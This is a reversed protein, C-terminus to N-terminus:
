KTNAYQNAIFLSGGTAALEGPKLGDLIEVFGAHTLGTKVIRKTFTRRDRTVWVTMTGDGERVIGDQPVALAAKPPAVSITFTAFMGAKLEGEPNAIESRVLVRRTSPDVTAGITVIKGQFTKGPLPAVTASVEQGVKLGPANKEPVNALMWM